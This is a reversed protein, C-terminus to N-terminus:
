VKRLVVKGAKDQYEEHTVGDITITRGTSLMQYTAGDAGLYEATTSFGDPAFGIEWLPISLDENGGRNDLEEFSGNRNSVPWIRTASSAKDYSTIFIGYDLLGARYLKDLKHLARFSSAINGTEFELGMRIEVTEDILNFFKHVASPIKDLGTQGLIFYARYMESAKPGSSRETAKEYASLFDTFESEACRYIKRKVSRTTYADFRQGDLEKEIEWGQKFLADQFKSTIFKASNVVTPKIKGNPNKWYWLSDNVIFNDGQTAVSQFAREMEQFVLMEINCDGLEPRRRQYIQM